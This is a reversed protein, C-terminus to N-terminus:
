YQQFKKINKVLKETSDQSNNDCIIIKNKDITNSQHLLSDITKELLHARNRTPVITTIESLM